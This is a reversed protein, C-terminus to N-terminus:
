DLGLSREAALDCVVQLDELRQPSVRDPEPQWDDWLLFIRVVDLGLDSIVDFEDAVEAPDFDSWWYMAKRPPWYNDVIVFRDHMEPRVPPTIGTAADARKSPGSRPTSISTSSTSACRTGRRGSSTTSSRGCSIGACTSARVSRKPSPR